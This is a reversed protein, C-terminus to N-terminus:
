SAREKAAWRTSLEAAVEPRQHVPVVRGGARMPLPARCDVGRLELRRCVDRDRAVDREIFCERRGEEEVCRFRGAFVANVDRLDRAGWRVQARRVIDLAVIVSAEPSCFAPEPPEPWKAAHWRKSLGLVGLGNENRGLVHRVSPRWASERDGVADLWACTLAPAKMARCTARVRSRVEDRQEASWRIPPGDVPDCTGIPTALVLALLVTLM